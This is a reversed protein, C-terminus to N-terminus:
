HRPVAGRAVARRVAQEPEPGAGLRDLGLLVAGTLPDTDTVVVTSSPSFAAVGEEIVSLLVPNRAALVSGGLVVTTGRETVGLREMAVRTMSCVEEGQRRVLETAVPDGKTAVDLLVPTCHRVDLSTLRDDRLRLAVERMSGLGLHDLLARVLETPEGRGDEARMAHWLAAMGLDNGGGWDGSRDGFALFRAQRGDAGVGVCNIGTGCVVAVGEGPVGARLVALTDNRVLVDGAWPKTRLLAAFEDEEEPLDLHAMCASVVTREDTGGVRVVLDELRDLWVSRPEDERMGAGRATALVTGRADVLAVDTKTGGADIGIVKSFEAPHQLPQPM